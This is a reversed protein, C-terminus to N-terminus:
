YICKQLKQNRVCRFSTCLFIYMLVAQSFLTPLVFNLDLVCRTNYSSNLTFGDPGTSIVSVFVQGPGIVHPNELTVPIPIGLESMLPSLPSLTGSTLIVCHLDSELLQKMRCLIFTFPMVTLLVAMLISGKIRVEASICCVALQVTCSCKQLLAVYLWSSQACTSSRYHLMCDAWSHMRVEAIICCVALQVTCACKQLLAVYLWSSQACTSSCYHLNCNSFHLFISYKVLTVSVWVCPQLV